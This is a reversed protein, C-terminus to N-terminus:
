KIRFIVDVSQELKLAVIMLLDATDQPKRGESDHYPDTSALGVASGLNRLQGSSVATAAGLRKGLGLAMAEAKHQADKVARAILELEIKDRESAKFGTSLRDINKMNLLALMLPRWHTLDSVDMHVSCVIDYQPPAKPDTGDAKHIDKRLDRVEIADTAAGNDTLLARVEKARSEVLVRAAEPDPDTASIEFDIEGRDPLAHVLASGSAHIFPYDPLQSAWVQLPATAALLLCALQKFPSTTM